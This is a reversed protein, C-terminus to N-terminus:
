APRAPAGSRLSIAQRRGLLMTLQSIGLERKPPELSTPVSFIRPTSTDLKNYSMNVLLPSTQFYFESEM